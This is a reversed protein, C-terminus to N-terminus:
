QRDVERCSPCRPSRQQLREAGTRIRFEFGRVRNTRQGPQDPQRRRFVPRSRTIVGAGQRQRGYSRILALFLLGMSDKSNGSRASNKVMEERKATTSHASPAARTKPPRYHIIKDIEEADEGDTTGTENESPYLTLPTITSFTGSVEGAGEGPTVCPGVGDAVADGEVVAVGVGAGVTVTVWVTVVVASDM